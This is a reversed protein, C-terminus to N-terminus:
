SALSAGCCRLNSTLRTALRHVNRPNSLNVSTVCCASSTTLKSSWPVCSSDAMTRRGSRPTATHDKSWEEADGDRFPRRLEIRVLNDPLIHLREQAIPPRLAYRVLAERGRSDEASATTAAHLSFGMETVSLPATVEVGPQGRLAIPQRSRMEPGAPALGSVAAAALQVLAPERDAFGDDLLTLEQRNEIVGRRALFSLVRVRIVQLLDALDSTDLNALPHFVAASNDPVFVGDLAISHLESQAVSVVETM